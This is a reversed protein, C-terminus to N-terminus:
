EARMTIMPDVRTGRAAPIWSALAGAAALLLAAAGLSVPDTPELGYLLSRVVPGGLLVGGVGLVLGLGVVGLSQRVVMGRVTGPAGGLAIRIGMERTRQAVQYSVVGYIGAGALMLALLAFGGLLMVMFRESAVSSVLHDEMTAVRPPVDPDLRQLTARLAPILAAADGGAAEVVLNANFRARFPRQMHHFYVTPEPERGLERYRVDGVVGVVQSFTRLEWHDDMGGGTVTRGIPDEGPWYEDAFSQSVIAVHADDPGDREDFTRGRLLPIDLAAFAEGGVLVYAADAHKDLDGDLEIRGNGLSGQVPLASIFGAASVGPLAEVSRVFGDHWRVHDAPAPYKAPSLSLELTAVDSGDFGADQGLLNQFSRVVLGSSVLLVLALAVEGAVLVRWVLSRRDAANGRGGERLASGADARSLRRAPLLGFGIVTLAAMATAYLLVSADMGLEALRPVADPGLRRLGVLVLQAIGLGVVAGAGALLASETLLQRAIRGRPAGLSARVALERGRSAGRALLTSALNTCAVLLVLGAAGLLFLLPRRSSGIVHEHLTTVVAGTALYDSPPEEAVLRLTLADMEAAAAELTTGPALRGVADWNHATRHASEVAEDLPVWVDVDAPFDLGAVAGVVRVREGGIELLLDDLPAGALENRWFHDSVVGVPEAGPAHDSPVTLRGITADARFVGWYGETMTGVTGVLPEGAGLITTTGAGYAALSEFGRAQERWDAFNAWAVGMAGGRTNRERLWVIDEAAEYPLPDLLVSDVVSFIATNAGIGLGLTVMAVLAFEPARVLTRLGYRVDQMWAEWMGTRREARMHRDAIARCARAVGDMDGFLRRAERMAEDPAWGQEVLERARLEIHAAIERDVDDRVSPGFIRGRVKSGGPELSV